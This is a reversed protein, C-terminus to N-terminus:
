KSYCNKALLMKFFFGQSNVQGVTKGINELNINNQKKTIPIHIKQTKWTIYTHIVQSIKMNLYKLCIKM